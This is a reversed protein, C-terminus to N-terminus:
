RSTSVQLISEVPGTWGNGERRWGAAILKAEHRRRSEAQLDPMGELLAELRALRARGSPFRAEYLVLVMCGQLAEFLEIERETM